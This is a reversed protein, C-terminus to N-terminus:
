GVDPTERELLSVYAKAFLEQPYSQNAETSTSRRVLFNLGLHTLKMTDAKMNIELEHQSEFHKLIGFLM